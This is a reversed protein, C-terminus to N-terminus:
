AARRPFVFTPRFWGRLTPLTMFRTFHRRGLISEIKASDVTKHMLLLSVLKFYRTGHADLITHAMNYAVDFIQKEEPSIAVFMKDFPLFRKRSAKWPPTLHGDKALAQAIERANVLDSKGEASQMKGYAEIEAAIGALQIVMQCWRNHPNDQSYFQYSTLGGAFKGAEYNEITASTVDIVLTCCWAATTHGAEHVAARNTFTYPPRGTSKKPPLDPTKKLEWLLVLM